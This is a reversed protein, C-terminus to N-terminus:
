DMPSKRRQNASCEVPIASSSDLKDELLRATQQAEKAKLQEIHIDRMLTFNHNTCLWFHCRNETTQVAISAKSSSVTHMPDPSAMVATVTITPRPVMTNDM